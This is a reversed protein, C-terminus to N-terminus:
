GVPPLSRHEPRNITREWDVALTADGLSAPGAGPDVLVDLPAGIRWVLRNRDSGPHPPAAEVLRASMLEPVAAYTTVPHVSGDAAGLEITLHYGKRGEHHEPEAPELQAFSAVTPTWTSRRQDLRAQDDPRWRIEIAGVAPWEDAAPWEIMSDQWTLERGLLKVTELWTVGSRPERPHSQVAVVLGPALQRVVGNAAEQLVATEFSRGDSSTVQLRLLVGEPKAGVDNPGVSVNGPTGAVGLVEATGPVTLSNLRTRIMPHELHDAVQDVFGAAERLQDRLGM